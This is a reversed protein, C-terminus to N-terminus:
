LFFSDLSYHQTAIFYGFRVSPFITSERPEFKRENRSKKRKKAMTGENGEIEKAIREGNATERILISYNLSRRRSGGGADEAPASLFAAAVLSRFPHIRPDFNIAASAAKCALRQVFMTRMRFPILFYILYILVNDNSKRCDFLNVNVYIPPFARALAFLPPFISSFLFLLRHDFVRRRAGLHVRQCHKPFHRFWKEDNTQSRIPFIHCLIDYM